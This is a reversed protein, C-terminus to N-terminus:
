KTADQTEQSIKVETEEDDSDAFYAIAARAKKLYALRSETETIQRDYEEVSIPSATEVTTIVNIEGDIKKLNITDEM